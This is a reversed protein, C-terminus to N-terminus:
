SRHNENEKGGQKKFINEIIDAIALSKLSIGKSTQYKEIKEDLAEDYYVMSSKLKKIEGGM